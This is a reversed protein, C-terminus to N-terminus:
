RRRFPFSKRSYVLAYWLAGWVLGGLVDLLSHQKVLVTSAIISLCAATLVLQFWLRSGLIRDRTLAFWVGLTDLVHISPNVNNPTDHSYLWKLCDIDWGSLADLSPRLQQGNPFLLYLVFTSTMGGYIFWSFRTFGPGDFWALWAFTFTIAVYWFLYPWVMAPVFPIASDVGVWEILYLPHTVQAECFVFGLGVFPYLILLLLYKRRALFALM